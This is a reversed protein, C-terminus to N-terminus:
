SFNLKKVSSLDRGRASQHEAMAKEQHPWSRIVTAREREILELAGEADFSEQLVLSAGAALTAGLSVAMGAAWFFPQATWMRDQPVLDLYEAFHLSRLVPARHGHIIAKPQASTGSTYIILADDDPTVASGLQGDLQLLEDWNEELCYIR